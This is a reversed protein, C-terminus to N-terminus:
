EERNGTPNGPADLIEEVQRLFSRTDIPKSLYGSFGAELFQERDGRMAYATLAIVPISFGPTARLVQMAELGSRLPLQIDMLIADPRQELAVRVAEEGDQATLMEHGAAKLLMGVLRMNKPNDEAVLFRRGM